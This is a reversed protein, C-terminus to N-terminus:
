FRKRVRREASVTALRVLLLLPYQSLFVFLVSVPRRRIGSATDARLSQLDRDIQRRNAELHALALEMENDTM